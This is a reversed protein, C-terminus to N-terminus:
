ELVAEVWNQPRLLSDFYTDVVGMDAGDRSFLPLRLLSKTGDADPLVVSADIRFRLGPGALLPPRLPILMEVTYGSGDARPRGAAWGDRLPQVCDFTVTGNLTRYTAPKRANQGWGEPLAPMMEVAVTRGGQGVPAAVVRVDGPGAAKRAPELPGFRLEVAAGGQFALQPTSASKWPKDTTVDFAAMLGHAGNHGPVIIGWALYVQAVVTEGDKIQVPRVDKWERLDGDVTITGHGTNLHPIYILDPRSRKAKVRASLKGAQETSVTLAGSQRRFKDWGTIRFVPNNNQGSGVFLVDGPNLGPVTADAPVVHLSGGFNESGLAYASPPAAQTDPEELLRGVWLGDTDWVHMPSEVDRVVICGKVVGVPGWFYKGEGPAPASGAAHRGVAWQFKGAKNWKLVRNAGVVAGWWGQGYAPRRGSNDAAYVNGEEDEALSNFGRSSGFPRELPPVEAIVDPPDKYIPIGDKWEKVAVRCVKTWDELGYYDFGLGLSWSGWFRRNTKSLDAVPILRGNAEDLRQVLPSGSPTCIYTQGDRHRAGGSAGPYTALVQWSKKRYDIKAQIVNGWGSSLWMITPDQPDLDGRNAYRQGGYWERLLAGDKDFRAVRRPPSQPEAIVFGGDPAAIIDYMGDFNAPDYKGKLRGGPRGFAQLLTGDKAFRKVQQGTAVDAKDRAAADPLLVAAGGARAPRNEAVLINGSKPDVNLRFPAKLRGAPIVVKPEKNRRTISVVRDNSIVLVRGDPAIAVGWPERIPAEDVVEGSQPDLWKVVNHRTFCVVVQGAAADLDTVSSADSYPALKVDDAMAVNWEANRTGTAADVRYVKQNRQLMYLRGDMCAMSTMGMWAEFWHPIVWLRKEDWGQKHGMICGEGGNNFIYLGSDDCAIACISCHNGPWTEWRPIPNTGVTLLYEAKLGQTLLLKWAFTGAPVPKGDEDLGDWTETNRGQRRPAAHLLERAVLGEDNWIVLSVRGDEPLTYTIPVEAAAWSTWALCWVVSVRAIVLFIRKM